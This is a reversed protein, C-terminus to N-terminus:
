SSIATYDAVENRLVATIAKETASDYHAVYKMKDKVLDDIPRDPTWGEISVKPLTIHLSPNTSVGITLDSRTLILELKIYDNATFADHWTTDQTDITMDGGIEFALALNDNPTGSGVVQNPKGNNNITLSFEKCDVASDNIKVQVDYNHFLDDESPWSVTYPSEAEDESKAIFNVKANVLDNVPTKIELSTVLGLVYEYDQLSPQSLALTLTPNQPDDVQVEFTHDYAGAQGGVAAPSYDGLLSLLIYGISKSRVNFELDGEARNAVIESGQSMIKSARTEKMLVKTVVPRIGTPTRGPIWMEPAVGTGRTQEPGVGINIQEGLLYPM